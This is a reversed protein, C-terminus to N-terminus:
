ACGANALERPLESHDYRGSCLTPFDPRAVDFQRMARGKSNIRRSQLRGTREVLSTCWKHLTQVTLESPPVGMSALLETAARALSRNYTLYLIRPRSLPSAGGLLRRIRHLAVATKGSGAVGRVIVPGPGALDVIETQGPDLNLLLETLRGRLFDALHDSGVARRILNEPRLPTGHLAQLLRFRLRSLAEMPLGIGELASASRAARVAPVLEDPTGMRRLEALPLNALPNRGTVRGDPVVDWLRLTRSEQTWVLYSDTSVQYACPESLVPPKKSLVEVGRIVGDPNKKAGTLAAQTALIEM